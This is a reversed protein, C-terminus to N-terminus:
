NGIAIYRVAIDADFASRFAIQSRPNPNISSLVINTAPTSTGYHTGVALFFNNPFTLPFPTYVEGSANATYEYRATAGGWQIILGGPLKMYGSGAVVSGFDTLLPYRADARSTTLYQDHPDPAALHQAVAEALEDDTAQEGLQSLRVYLSDGRASTLYQLHPDAKQEHDAVLGSTAQIVKPSVDEVLRDSMAAFDVPLVNINLQNDTTNETILLNLTFSWSASKQLGGQAAMYPAYGWLQGNARLFAIGTVPQDFAVETPLYAEYRTQTANDETIVYGPQGAAADRTFRYLEAGPAATLALIDAVATVPTGSLLVIHQLPSAPAAGDRVQKDYAAGATTRIIVTAM